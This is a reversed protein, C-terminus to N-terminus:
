LRAIRPFQFVSDPIVRVGKPIRDLPTGDQLVVVSRGSRVLRDVQAQTPMIHMCNYGHRFMFQVDYVFPVHFLVEKDPGSLHQLLEKEAEIAALQQRRHLQEERPKSYVTHVLQTREIDLLPVALAVLGLATVLSRLRPVPVAGALSMLAHGVAILYLPFLVMGYGIMKTAALLFFVHVSLITSILFIRKEADRAAYVLWLLCPLVSWWALPPIVKAITDFHYHWSGEHAAVAVNFHLSKFYWEYAAQDPFRLWMNLMWAGVPVAAGLAGICVHRLDRWPLKRRILILGWPLFVFLGVYWKTLVACASFLGVAIAWRWTGNRQWELLAWWSCAVAGMFVADNHDTGMQGSTLEQLYWAFTVLFAAAFASRADTLLQTIRYSVPVLATMWIVSPLRIAWAKAGFLKICVAMQWLFFPPKHLWIHMRNWENTVPMAADTYLMPTFPHEVLNRAVAAHFVEDWYNLFPDLFAAFLRLVLAALTLVVLATRPRDRLQLILACVGLAGGLALM